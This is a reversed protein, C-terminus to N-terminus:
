SKADTIDDMIFLFKQVQGAEDRIASASLRVFLKQNQKNKIYIFDVHKNGKEVKAKTEEFKDYNAFLYDIPMGELDVTDYKLKTEAIENAEKIAFRKDTEILMYAFNFLTEKEKYEQQYIAIQKQSAELTEMNQRMEEEQNKMQETVQTSEQLLRQTRENIKVAALTSAISEAVKEVFEIEFKELKRFSAIEIIGFIEDNVKLPVILISDPNAEGLGSTIRVYGEPVDTLYITGKEQWSQGALGDGKFIRQELYKKRDWAYCALLKLYPEHAKGKSNLQYSEEVIFLGGQNAKLYKVLNSIVLDSLAEISINQKLLESFKVLGENAWSRRREGEAVSALNARMELLANGLVDQESLPTYVAEYNGSGISEAFATTSKLGYVLKDASQAMEGIEDNNFQYHRDEPLEGMGLKIFVSNIYKIPNVIQRRTWWSVFIGVFVLVSGLIITLYVLSEFSKLIRKETAERERKVEEVLQKTKSQIDDGLPLLKRLLVDNVQEVRSNDKYDEDEALLAMIKEQYQKLNDFKNWLSDMRVIQDPNAWRKQLNKLNDKFEPFTSHLKKLAEMEIRRTSSPQYIWAQIYSQSLAVKLRFENMKFVSPSEIESIYGIRKSSDRITLISFVANLIFLLYIFLFGAIIKQSIGRLSFIQRIRKWM